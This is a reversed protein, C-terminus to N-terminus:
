AKSLGVSFYRCNLDPNMKLPFFDQFAKDSTHRAFRLFVLILSPLADRYIKRREILRKVNKKRKRM